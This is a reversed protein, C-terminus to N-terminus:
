LRLISTKEWIYLLWFNCIFEDSPRREWSQVYTKDTAVILKLLEMTLLVTFVSLKQFILM